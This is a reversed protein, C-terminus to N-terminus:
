DESWKEPVQDLLAFFRDADAADHQIPSSVGWIMMFQDRLMRAMDLSQLIFGYRERRSAIVMVKDQYIMYSLRADIEAPAMRMERLFRVGSGMFPYRRIDVAQAAPWIAKLAINKKIRMLNFYTLYDEGMVAIMSQVPWFSFVESDPYILMDDMMHHLGHQSDYFQLQPRAVRGGIKAMLAPIDQEFQKQMVQMRDLKQQYLMNLRAPHEALFVQKNGAGEIAVFGSNRLKELHGYLTTRPVSMDKALQSVSRGGKELLCRYLAVEKEGLGFEAFLPTLM